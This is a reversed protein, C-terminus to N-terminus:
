RGRPAQEKILPRLLALRKPDMDTFQVGHEYWGGELKNKNNSRFRSYVIKGATMVEGTPLQLRLDLSTAVAVPGPLEVMLGGEGLTRVVGALFSVEAPDAAGGLRYRVPIEVPYRLFRRPTGRRGMTVLLRLDREFREITVPKPIVGLCISAALRARAGLVREATLVAIPLRTTTPRRRLEQAFDLGDGDPLGLDLLILDPRHLEALTLARAGTAAELVLYGRPELVQRLALRLAADDEVILITRAPTM